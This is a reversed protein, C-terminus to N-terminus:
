DESPLIGKAIKDQVLREVDIAADSLGGGPFRLAWKFVGAIEGATGRLISPEAKVQDLAEVSASAIRRYLRDTVAQLDDGGAREEQYWQMANFQLKQTRPYFSAMLNWDDNEGDQDGSRRFDSRLIVCPTDLMKAYMFEVVTGSDLETGDFNFIALDCEMLTKLDQNRIQAARASTQELDQPLVCRYKGNSVQEIHSALLANGILDKHDFLEGAFYITYETTM